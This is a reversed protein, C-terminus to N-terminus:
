YFFWTTKTFLNIYIKVIGGKFNIKVYQVHFYGRKKFGRLEILLTLIMMIITYFYTHFNPHFCIILTFVYINIKGSCVGLGPFDHIAWCVVGCLMFFRNSQPHSIEYMRIVKCLIQMEDISPAIYVDM